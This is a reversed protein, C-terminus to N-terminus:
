LEATEQENDNKGKSNGQRNNVVPATYRRKIVM